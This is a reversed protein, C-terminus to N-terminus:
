ERDVLRSVRKALEIDRETVGGIEHSSFFVKCLGYSVQMDPHHGEYESIEAVGNVFSMTRNFDEFRFEREIGNGSETWGPMHQLAYDLESKTLLINESM